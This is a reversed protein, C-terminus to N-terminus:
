FECSLDNKLFSQLKKTIADSSSFVVSNRLVDIGRKPWNASWLVFLVVFVQLLSIVLIVTLLSLDYYNM